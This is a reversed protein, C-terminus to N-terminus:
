DKVCRVSFGERKFFADRFQISDDFYLSRNWAGATFTPNETSSWWYGQLGIGYFLGDVRYGGPLGTFGSSNTAGINPLNWGSTSKMAGGAVSIGGLTNRLISWEGDSPVHWGQPALGRPDNVAYWNYLRGYTAAYTASDNNYWCWAGTTLAIWQTPDTVQPIIDGNRYRAVSLNQTTWVQTGITVNPLLLTTFTQQAGYSTGVSNTAYARVYYTTNATLGTISSTFEGTGSGDVTKTTLSVTPNTTTSWCVGRFNVSAGGDSSVIGGSTATTNLISSIATTTVTPIVTALTTLTLDAGYSTGVSNTAYARV